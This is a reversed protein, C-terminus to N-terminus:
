RMRSTSINYCLSIIILETLALIGWWNMSLNTIFPWTILAIMVSFITPLYFWACYDTMDHGSSTLALLMLLVSITCAQFTIVGALFYSNGLHGGVAVACLLFFFVVQSYELFREM